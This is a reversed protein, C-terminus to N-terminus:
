RPQNEGRTPKMRFLPCPFFSSEGREIHSGESREPHCDLSHPPSRRGAKDAMWPKSYSSLVKVRVVSPGAKPVRFLTLNHSMSSAVALRRREGARGEM